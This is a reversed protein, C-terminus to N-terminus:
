SRAAYSKWGAPVGFLRLDEHRESINMDVFIRIGAAQLWRSIWRKRYIQWIAVARPMDDYVSFNPEIVSVCASNAIDLPTKWINEFRYDEVYFHYTGKMTDKRSVTGWATFPAELCLAQMSADLVPIGYDNDTGWIADPVRLFTSGESVTQQDELDDPEPQGEDIFKEIEKKTFLGDIVEPENDAMAKLVQASWNLDVQAIRNDEVALRKAEPSDPSLDRRVHVIPIDGDTYVFIAREGLGADVLTQQTASGAMVVPAGEGGGAAAIPRFIGRETVSKALLGLGFETHENANDPDPVADTLPHVEISFGDGEFTDAM